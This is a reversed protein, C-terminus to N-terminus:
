EYGANGILTCSPDITGRAVHELMMGLSSRVVNCLPLLIRHNAQQSDLGRKEPRM